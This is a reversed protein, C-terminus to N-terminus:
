ALTWYPEEWRHYTYSWLRKWTKGNEYKYKYGTKNAYPQINPVTASATKSFTAFTTFIQIPMTIIILQLCLITVFLKKKM